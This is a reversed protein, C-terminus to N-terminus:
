GSEGAFLERKADSQRLPSGAPLRRVPTLDDMVIRGGPKLLGVLSGFAAADRVGCDAFILDLAGHARCCASGTM